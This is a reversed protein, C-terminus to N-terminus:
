ITTVELKGCSTFLKIMDFAIRIPKGNIMEFQWGHYIKGSTEDEWKSQFYRKCIGGFKGNLYFEM